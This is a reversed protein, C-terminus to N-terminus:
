VSYPERTPTGISFPAQAHATGRLLAARQGTHVQRGLRDDLALDPVVAGGDGTGIDPQQVRGVLEGGLHDGARLALEAEEGGRTLPLQARQGRDAPALAEEGGVDAHVLRGRGDGAPGGAGGSPLLAAPPRGGSRRDGTPM